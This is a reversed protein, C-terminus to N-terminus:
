LPELLELSTEQAPKSEKEEKRGDKKEEQSWQSCKYCM